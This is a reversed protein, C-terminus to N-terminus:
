YQCMGNMVQVARIKLYVIEEVIALDSVHGCTFAVFRM